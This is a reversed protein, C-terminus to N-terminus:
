RQKVPFLCIFIIFQNQKLPVKKILLNELKKGKQTKHYMLLFTDTTSFTSVLIISLLNLTDLLQM